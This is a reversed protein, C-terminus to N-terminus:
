KTNIKKNGALLNKYIRKYKLQSFKNCFDYHSRQSAQFTNVSTLM